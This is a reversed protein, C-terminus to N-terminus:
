KTEVSPALAELVSTDNMTTAMDKASWEKSDTINADAGHEILWATAEIQRHLVSYHLPTEHSWKPRSDDSVDSIIGQEKKFKTRSRASHELNTWLQENVNAGYRLLLDMVDIRGNEAAQHMAGSQEIQAGHQILLEIVELSSRQVATRLYTGPGARDPGQVQNPDAGNDLLYRVLTTRDATYRPANRSGNVAQSLPTGPHGMDINVVDPNVAYLERFVSVSNSSSIAACISDRRILTEYPVGQTHAFLLLYKIIDSSGAGAAKNFMSLLNLSRRTLQLEEDEIREETELAKAIYAPKQLLTQVSALDGAACAEFLGDASIDDETM